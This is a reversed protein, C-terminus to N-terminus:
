FRILIGHPPELASKLIEIGKVQSANRVLALIRKHLTGSGKGHIITLEKVGEHKAKNLHLQFYALQAEMPTAYGQKNRQSLKEWHLDVQKSKSSIIAKEEKKYKDPIGRLELPNLQNPVVESCHVNMDMDYESERIMLYGADLIKIVVGVLETDKGRVQDGIQFPHKFDTM